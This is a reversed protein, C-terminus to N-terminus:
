ALITAFHTVAMLLLVLIEYNQLCKEKIKKIYKSVSYDKGSKVM